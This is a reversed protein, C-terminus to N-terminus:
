AASKVLRLQRRSRLEDIKAKIARDVDLLEDILVDDPEGALEKEIFQMLEKGIKSTCKAPDAKVVPAPLWGMRCTTIKDLVEDALGDHRADFTWLLGTTLWFPNHRELVNPNLMKSLNTRGMQLYRASEEIQGDPLLKHISTEFEERDPLPNLM